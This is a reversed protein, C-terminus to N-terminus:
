TNFGNVAFQENDQLHDFAGVLWRSALPKM